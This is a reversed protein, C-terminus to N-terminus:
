SELPREGIGARRQKLIMFSAALLLALALVLLSGGEFGPVPASPLITASNFLRIVNDLEDIYFVFASTQRNVTDLHQPLGTYDFPVPAMVLGGPFNLNGILVAGNLRASYNIILNGLIGGGIKDFAGDIHATYLQTFSVMPDFYHDINIMAGLIQDGSVNRIETDTVVLTAGNPNTTTAFIVGEATWDGNADVLNFEVRMEDVDPDTDALDGDNVFIPPNIGNSYSIRNLAAEAAGFTLLLVAACGFAARLAAVASLSPGATRFTM